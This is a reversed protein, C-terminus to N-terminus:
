PTLTLYSACSTLKNRRFIPLCRGFKLALCLGDYKGGTVDDFKIFNYEMELDYTTKIQVRRM